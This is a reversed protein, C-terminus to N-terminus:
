RDARAVKRMPLHLRRARRAHKQKIWGHLTVFDRFRRAVAWNTEGEHMALDDALPADPGARGIVLWMEITYEAHESEVSVGTVAVSYERAASAPAQEEMALPAATPLYGPRGHVDASIPPSSSAEPSTVLSTGVTSSSNSRAASQWLPARDAHHAKGQSGSVVNAGRAVGAGDGRVADAVAEETDEDAESEDDSAGAAVSSPTPSSPRVGVPAAALEGGSAATAATVEEFTPADGAVLPRLINNLSRMLFHPQSLTSLTPRLICESILNSLTERALISETLEGPAAEHM